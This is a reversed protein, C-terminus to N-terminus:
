PLLSDLEVAAATASAKGRYRSRAAGALGIAYFPVYELLKVWLLEEWPEGPTSLYLAHYSLGVGLALYLWAPSPYFCLFPLIWLLYWPHVTAALALIAGLVLYAARLPPVKLAYLGLTLAVLALAVIAKATDLSGTLAYLLHFLSDNGRWRTGYQMLGAFARAGAERYPWALAVSLIPLVVLTRPRVFRM